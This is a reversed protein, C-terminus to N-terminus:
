KNEGKTNPQIMITNYGAKRISKRAIIWLPNIFPIDMDSQSLLLPIETCGAIVGEVKDRILQHLVQLIMKKPREKYGAKIGEKQYLAEMILNQGKEGPVVIEIGNKNFLEQFLGIQVTGDTALLGIRKVHGLKRKVYVISEELLHLFPITIHKVIEKYFFHATVCPMLIFDAGAKELLIASDVLYPLPSPGGRVIAATRDPIKPNNFVIIPIHDQDKEVKTLKVILRFMYITAEPGMGGLIGITKSM